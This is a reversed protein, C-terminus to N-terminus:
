TRALRYRRVTGENDDTYNGLYEGGCNEIVKQSAPNDISCTVIVSDTVVHDRVWVLLFSAVGKGRVSPKTEYGVHGIVNEVNANTGTRVRIAGLIESNSICYYTTSPLYGNPLESTAKSREVLGSLYAEPNLEVNEYKPIGSDFCEKAYSALMPALDPSAEVVEM